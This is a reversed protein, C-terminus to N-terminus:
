DIKKDNDAFITIKATSDFLYHVHFPNEEDAQAIDATRWCRIADHPM